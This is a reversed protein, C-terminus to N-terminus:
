TRTHLYNHCVGVSHCRHCVGVSHCRHCVGVSHCHLLPNLIPTYISNVEGRENGNLRLELEKGGTRRMENRTVKGKKTGENRYDYGILYSGMGERGNGKKEVTIRPIVGFNKSIVSACQKRGFVFILIQNM